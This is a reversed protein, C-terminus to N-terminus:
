KGQAVYDRFTACEQIVRRYFATNRYQKALVAFDAYPDNGPEKFKRYWAFETKCAQALFLCEAALEPDKTAQVAKRYYALAIRRENNDAGTQHYTQALVGVLPGFELPNYNGDYRNGTLNENASWFPTHFFGNAIQYYYRDAKEPHNRALDELQVVKRTFDLKTYYPFGGPPYQYLGTKPNYRSHDFSTRIQGYEGEDWNRKVKEWFQPAVKTLNVLAGQFDGQRLFGTGKIAYFDDVAYKPNATIVTEFHTKNVKGSFAILRDLDQSGAYHDLLADTSLDVKALCYFAKSFDGTLLYKQALLSYFSERINELNSASKAKADLWQLAPVSSAELQENMRPSAAVKNLEQLFVIQNRLDENVPSLGQAQTLYEAAKTYQQELTCLYGNAALWLAPQRVKRYDVAACFRQLEGIHKLAIQRQELQERRKTEFFLSSNLYLREIKNIQRILMVEFRTSQPELEYMRQLPELTIRQEQLGRLMWLTAQRHRNGALRLCENWLSDPPINFDIFAEDMMSPNQDFILSALVLSEAKRGLKQLAGVKHRLAWDAVVSKYGPQAILQEYYNLCDQPKEAFNALRVIQYGYRVKLFSGTVNRYKALGVDILKQMEAPKRREKLAAEYEFYWSPDLTAYPECQKAFLLYELAPLYEPKAIANLRQNDKSLPLKAEIRRCVNQLDASTMKYVLFALDDYSVKGSFYKAWEQLNQTTRTQNISAEVQYQGSNNAIDYYFRKFLKDQSLTSQFFTLYNEFYDPVYGCGRIVWDQNCVVLLSVFVLMCIRLRRM